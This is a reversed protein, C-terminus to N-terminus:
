ERADAEDVEIVGLAQGVTLPDDEVVLKERLIGSKPAPLDVTASGALVELLRDGETVRRGAEVLWQSAFIPVGGVGLDPLRLEVCHGM